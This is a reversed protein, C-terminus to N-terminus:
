ALRARIRAALEAAADGTMALVGDESSLARLQQREYPTGPPLPAVHWHLHANGDQSGLSLLYTRESPVAREVALAVRRVVDMLRLYADRDLDRVVHEVHARPCVLVKGPVTPYADLFAIHEGDQYVVEHAYAPDGAVLRCVFCPGSRVRREYAGADFPVRRYGM